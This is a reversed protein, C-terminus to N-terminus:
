PKYKNSEWIYRKLWSNERWLGTDKWAIYQVKKKEMEKWESSYKYLYSKKLDGEIMDSYSVKDDERTHKVQIFDKMGNEYTIVVDDLSQSEDSQLVVNKIQNDPNLMKVVYLLGVSWEYWYPTGTGATLNNM